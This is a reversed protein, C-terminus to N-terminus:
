IIENLDYKDAWWQVFEEATDGLEFAGKLILCDEGNESTYALAYKNTSIEDVEETFEILANKDYEKAQYNIEFEALELATDGICVYVTDNEVKAEIDMSELQAVAKENRTM